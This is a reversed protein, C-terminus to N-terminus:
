WTRKIGSQGTIKFLSECNNNTYEKLISNSNNKFQSSGSNIIKKRLIKQLLATSKKRMTM